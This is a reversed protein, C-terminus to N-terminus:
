YVFLSQYTEMSIFKKLTNKCASDLYSILNERDKITKATAGPLDNNPIRYM